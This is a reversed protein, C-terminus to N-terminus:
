VHLPQSLFLGGIGNHRRVKQLIECQTVQTDPGPSTPIASESLNDQLNLSSAMLMRLPDVVMASM